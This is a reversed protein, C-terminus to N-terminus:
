VAREKIDFTEAAVVDLLVVVVVWEVGDEGDGAGVVVAQGGREGGDGGSGGGEVGGRGGDAGGVERVAGLALRAQEARADDPEVLDERQVGDVLDVREDPLARDIEDHDDTRGGLHVGGRAVNRM